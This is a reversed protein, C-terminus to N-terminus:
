RRRKTAISIRREIEREKIKARKDFKTMRTGFAIEVKILNKDNIYVKTPIVTGGKTQQKGYIRNLQYRHLLLKRDRKPKHNLGGAPPYIAIDMNIIYLEGDRVRCYAEDLSVRGDRISKVESGTLTIGAEFREFLQFENRAKRNDRIVKM